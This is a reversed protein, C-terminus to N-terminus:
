EAKDAAPKSVQQAPKSKSAKGKSKRELAAERALRKREARLQKAEARREASTKKGTGSQAPDMGQQPFGNAGPYGGAGGFLIQPPYGTQVGRRSGRGRLAQLAWYQQMQSAQESTLGRMPPLGTGPLRGPVPKPVAAVAALELLSMSCAALLVYTARRM